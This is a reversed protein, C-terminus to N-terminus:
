IETTIKFKFPVRPSPTFNAPIDFRMVVEAYGHDEIVDVAQDIGAVSPLETALGGIQLRNASGGVIDMVVEPSRYTWSGTVVCQSDPAVDLNLIASSGTANVSFGTTLTTKYRFALVFTTDTVPPTLGANPGSPDSNLTIVPNAGSYDIVAGATFYTTGAPIPQITPPLYTIPNDVDPGSESVTIRWTGGTWTANNGALGGRVEVSPVMSDAVYSSTGGRPMNFAQTHGDGIGLEIDKAACCLTTCRARGCPQFDPTTGQVLPSSDGGGTDSITFMCGTAPDVSGAGDKNNYVRLIKEVSSGGRDVTAFDIVTLPTPIGGVMEWLTIIPVGM